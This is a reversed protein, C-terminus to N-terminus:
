IHCDVTTMLVDDPLSLIMENAFNRWEDRDVKDDSVGFFLMEGRAYWKGDKLIAYPTIADKRAREIYTERDVLFDDVVIFPNGKSIAAVSPQSSYLERVKKRTESNLNDWGGFKESIKNISDWLVGKHIDFAKDWKKSETAMLNEQMAAFDINGKKDQNTTTGNKKLLYDSWRGGVVYYDWKANPNTRRIAKIINGDKDVVAYGYKHLESDFSREDLITRDELGHYELGEAKVEETIDVNVVYEDDEGDSEFEHYPALQAEINDGIVLVNYHSM